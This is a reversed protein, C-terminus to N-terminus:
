RHWQRFSGLFLFFCDLCLIREEVTVPAIYSAGYLTHNLDPVELVQYDQVPFTQSDPM